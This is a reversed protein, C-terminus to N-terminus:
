SKLSERERRQKSPIHKSSAKTTSSQVKGIRPHNKWGTTKTRFPLCFAFQFPISKRHGFFPFGFLVKIIIIKKKYYYCFNKNFLVKILNMIHILNKSQELNLLDLLKGHIIQSILSKSPQGCGMKANAM